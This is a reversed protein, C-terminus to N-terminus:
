SGRPSRWRGAGAPATCLGQAPSRGPPLDRYAGLGAERAEGGARYRFIWSAAGRASAFFLGSGDGVLTPKAGSLEAQKILAKIRAETLKEVARAM